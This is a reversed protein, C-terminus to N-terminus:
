LGQNQTREACAFDLAKFFPSPVIKQQSGREARSGVFNLLAKFGLPHM